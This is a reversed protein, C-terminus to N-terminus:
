QLEIVKASDKVSDFDEEQVLDYQESILLAQGNLNWYMEQETPLDEKSDAAPPIFVVGKVATIVGRANKQVSTVKFDFGCRIKASKVFQRFSKFTM